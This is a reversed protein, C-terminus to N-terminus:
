FFFTALYSNQFTKLFLINYKKKNQQLLTLNDTTMRRQRGLIQNTYCNLKFKFSPRANSTGPFLLADISNLISSTLRESMMKISVIKIKIRDRKRSIIGKFYTFIHATRMKSLTM